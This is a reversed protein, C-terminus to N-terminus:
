VGGCTGGGSPCRYQPTLHGLAAVLVMDLEIFTHQAEDWRTIVAAIPYASHVHTGGFRRGTSRRQAAHRDVEDRSGPNAHVCRLRCAKGYTSHKAILAVASRLQRQEDTVSFPM